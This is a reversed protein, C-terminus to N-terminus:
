IDSKHKVSVRFEFFFCIVCVLFFVFFGLSPDDEDHVHCRESYGWDESDDYHCHAELYFTYPASLKEDDHPVSLSKNDHWVYSYRLITERDVISSNDHFVEHFNSFGGAGELLSAILFLGGVLAALFRAIRTLVRVIRFIHLFTAVM